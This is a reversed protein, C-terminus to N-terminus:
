AFFIRVFLILLSRFTILRHTLHTRAHIHTHIHANHTHTFHTLAYPKSSKYKPTLSVYYCILPLINQHFRNSYKLNLPVYSICNLTKIISHLDLVHVLLVILYLRLCTLTLFCYVFSILFELSFPSFISVFTYINIQCCWMSIHTLIIITSTAVELNQYSTRSIRYM